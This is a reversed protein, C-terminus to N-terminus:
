CAIDIAITQILQNNTSIVCVGSTFSVYTFRENHKALSNNASGASPAGIIL